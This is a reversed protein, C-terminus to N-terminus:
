PTRLRRLRCDVSFCQKAISILCDLPRKEGQLSSWIDEATDEVREIPAFERDVGLITWIQNERVPCNQCKRTTVGNYFLVASFGSKRPVLALEFRNGVGDPVLVEVDIGAMKTSYVPEPPRSWTHILIGSV